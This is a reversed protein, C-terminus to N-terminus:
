SNASLVIDIQDIIVAKVAPLVSQSCYETIVDLETLKELSGSCIIENDDDNSDNIMKIIIPEFTSLALSIEESDTANEVHSRLVILLDKQLAIM